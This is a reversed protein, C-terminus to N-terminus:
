ARRARSAEQILYDRLYYNGFRPWRPSLVLSTRVKAPQGSLRSHSVLRLKQQYSFLSRWNLLELPKSSRRGGLSM